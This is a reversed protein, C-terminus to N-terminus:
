HKLVRSPTGVASMDRGVFLIGTVPQKGITALAGFDGDHTLVVRSDARAVSLVEEDPKGVLALQYVDVVDWGKARLFRTVETDFNEDALYRFDALRV